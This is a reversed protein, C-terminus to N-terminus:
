GLLSRQPTEPVLLGALVTNARGRGSRGRGRVKTEYSEGLQTASPTVPQQYAKNVEQQFYSPWADTQTWNLFGRVASLVSTPQAKTQDKYVKIAERWKFIPNMEMRTLEKIRKQDM